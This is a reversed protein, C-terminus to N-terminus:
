QRLREAARLVAVPCPAYHLVAQSVSGLLMRGLAGRGHSGVVLLTSGKIEDLLAHVPKEASVVERVSVDPYREAMGALSEALVAAARARADDSDMTLQAFHHDHWSHVAVLEAHHRSAFDYGFEVARTSTPSGDVGVVVREVSGDGAHEGRVVVVPVTARRALESSTSGLLVRAVAGAGSSGVVLMTADAGAESLVEVPDGDVFEGTVEVDPAVARCHDVIERLRVEAAHRLPIEATVGGPLTLSAMAIAQVEFAHIVVLPRRLTDAERVAWRAAVRAPESVDIGVVISHRTHVAM